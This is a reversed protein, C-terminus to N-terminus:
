VDGFGVIQVPIPKGDKGTLEHEQKDAQGLENKGLFIAMGVNNRYKWQCQRLALKRECRKVRLKKRLDEHDSIFADSWGMLGAITGNQCGEFAYQEAREIEDKSLKTKVGRTM